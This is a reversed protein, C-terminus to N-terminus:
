TCQVRLTIPYEVMKSLHNNVSFARCTYVGERERKLDRFTLVSRLDPAPRQVSETM